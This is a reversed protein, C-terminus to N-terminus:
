PRGLPWTCNHSNSQLSPLIGYFQHYSWVTTSSFVGSLGKALLSILCTLRLPSWGQINMPFVSASVSGGNSDDDSIFLHSMPFTGSAPFSQSCFSFLADCSSIAPHCWQHLSCSNPCIRSSLSPCPLREQQLGHPRLSDSMVPHSFSLLLSVPTKPHITVPNQNSNSLQKPCLALRAVINRISLNDTAWVKSKMRLRLSYNISLLCLLLISSSIHLDLDM